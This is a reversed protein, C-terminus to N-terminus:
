RPSYYIRYIADAFDDSVLLSGDPLWELDVPRGWVDDGPQLWGEAFPEYRTCKGEDNLRVLTLRYGIKRSRNWSGHEAILIQNRYEAPWNHSLVFEVGLPAVHPGLNQAPPTFDSCPRKHGFKPDPTDGQHCYPYGFHMGDRPAHNLECAPMDDGMMDRGNDTFWLHKTQPHWTFGVTNRVGHQVIEPGKEPKDVDMRTISAYLPNDLRECINCPAGVPVYLLSDPGFAIYKWGHHADTPYRDYVVVPTPPNSLRREIDDFRLIRSVEAVYLSGKRFAVGNPMRLGTALTYRLDAVGDGNTDRLAYVNGVDRTGVFLTGSPSLCMSRANQLGEAYVSIRFGEPLRIRGLPLSGRYEDAPATVPVSAQRSNSGSSGACGMWVAGALAVGIIVLSLVVRKM